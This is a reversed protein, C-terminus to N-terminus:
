IKRYLILNLQMAIKKFKLQLTIIVNKDDANEVKVYKM